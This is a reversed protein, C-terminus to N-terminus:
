VKYNPGKVNFLGQCSLVVYNAGLSRLQDINSQTTPMGIPGPGKYLRGDLKFNVQGSYINAGRLLTQSSNWLEWKTHVQQVANSTSSSLTSAAVNKVDNNKTSSRDIVTSTSSSTAVPVVVIGMMTMLAILDFFAQVVLICWCGRRHDGGTSGRLFSSSLLMM